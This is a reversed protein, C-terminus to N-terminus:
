ILAARRKLVEAIEAACAEVLERQPGEVMIRILPETGSPRLLVRGRSGLRMEASALARAVEADDLVAMGAAGDSPVSCLIQPHKVLPALLEALSRGRGVVAAMLALAAIIGDGTSARDLCIIHGSTEGGLVGGTAELRALVYRDGV